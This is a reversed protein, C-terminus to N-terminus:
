WIRLPIGGPIGKRSLSAGVARLAPACTPAGILFRPPRRPVTRGSPGHHPTRRALACAAGRCLGARRGGPQAASSTLSGHLPLEMTLVHAATAGHRRSWKALNSRRRRRGEM